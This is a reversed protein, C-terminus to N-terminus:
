ALSILGFCLSYALFQITIITIVGVAVLPYGRSWNLQFDKILLTMILLAAVPLAFSTFIGLFPVAAAIVQAIGLMLATLYVTQPHNIEIGLNFQSAIAIGLAAFITYLGLNIPQRLIGLHLNHNAQGQPQYHEAPWTSPIIDAALLNPSRQRGTTYVCGVKTNGSQQFNEQEATTVYIHPLIKEGYSTIVPTQEPALNSQPIGAKLNAYRQCGYSAVAETEETLPFLRRPSTSITKTGALNVALRCYNASGIANRCLDPIQKFATVQSGNNSFISLLILLVTVLIWVGPIIQKKIMPPLQFKASELEDSESNVVASSAPTFSYQSSHVRQAKKAKQVAADQAIIAKFEELTHDPAFCYRSLWITFTQQTDYDLESIQKFWRQIAIASQAGAFSIAMNELDPTEAHNFYGDLLPLLKYQNNDTLHHFFKVLRIIERSPPTIDSQLLKKNTIFCYQDLNVLSDLSDDAENASAEAAVESGLPNVKVVSFSIEEEQFPTQHVLGTDQLLGTDGASDEELFDEFAAFDLESDELIEPKVPNITIQELEEATLSDQIDQPIPATDQQPNTDEANNTTFEEFQGLQTYNLPRLKSTAELRQGGLSKVDSGLDETTNFTDSTERDAPTPLEVEIKWNPEVRNLPRGYLWVSDLNDLALSAIAQAVSTKLLEYNPQYDVRHNAYIHLRDHQCIAQFKFNRNGCTSNLAKVI